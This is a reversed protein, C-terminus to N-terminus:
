RCPGPQLDGPCGGHRPRFWRKGPASHVPVPGALAQHRKKPVKRVTSKSITEVVEMAVLGDALPRLTWRAQGEPPESCALMTLRAEGEGDLPRAKRSAQVRRELAAEVGEM